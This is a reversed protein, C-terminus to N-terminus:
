AKWNVPAMCKPIAPWYRNWWRQARACCASLSYQHKTRADQEWTALSCPLTVSRPWSPSSVAMCDVSSRRTKGRIRNGEAFFTFAADYQRLVEYAKGLGFALHMHHRDAIDPQAYAQEMARIDGDHASHKKMGALHRHAESFDPKLAIAHRFSAVAADLDGIEALATGLNCHLEATDPALVLATRYSALAADIEGIDKLANGLSNHAEVYDPDIALAKAIHDVASEVKGLQHAIVGLRHWAVPQRPDAQLIRRYM